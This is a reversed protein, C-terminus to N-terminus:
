CFVGVSIDKTCLDHNRIEYVNITPEQGEVHYSNKVRFKMGKM